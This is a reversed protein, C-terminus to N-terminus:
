KDEIKLELNDISKFWKEWAKAIDDQQKENATGSKYKHIVFDIFNNVEPLLSEQLQQLKAIASQRINMTSKEKVKAHIKDALLKRDRLAESQSIASRAIRFIFHSGNNAIRENEDLM